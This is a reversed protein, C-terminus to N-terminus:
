NSYTDPDYPKQSIPEHQQIHLANLTPIFISLVFIFIFSSQIISKRSSITAM